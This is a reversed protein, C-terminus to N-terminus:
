VWGGRSNEAAVRAWGGEGRGGRDEPVNRRLGGGCTTPARVYISTRIRRTHMYHVSAENLCFRGSKAVPQVETERFLARITDSSSGNKMGAPVIESVAFLAAVTSRAYRYHFYKQSLFAYYIASISRYIIKGSWIVAISDCLDRASKLSSKYKADKIRYLFSIDFTPKIM